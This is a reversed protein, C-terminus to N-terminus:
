WDSKGALMRPSFQFVWAHTTTALKLEKSKQAWIKGYDPPQTFTNEQLGPLGSMAVMRVEKDAGVLLQLLGSVGSLVLFYFSISTVYSCELDDISIGRQMMDKLRLPVSFPLQAVVFGSFFSAILMMLGINNAMMMIQSKMLGTTVSPDFVESPDPKTVERKLSKDVMRNARTLFSSTPLVGGEKLLHIAYSTTNAYCKDQLNEKKPSHLLITVYHRLVGVLLVIIFIPFLVWNRIDPDLLLTVATM